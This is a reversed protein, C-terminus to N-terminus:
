VIFLGDTLEDKCKGCLHCEGVAQLTLNQRSNQLVVASSAGGCPGKVLDEAYCTLSYVVDAIEEGCRDCKYTTKKM